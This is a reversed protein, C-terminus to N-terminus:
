VGLFLSWHFEFLFVVSEMWLFANSYTTQSTAAMKDLSLYTLMKKLEARPPTLLTKLVSATWPFSQHISM